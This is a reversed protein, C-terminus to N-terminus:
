PIAIEYPSTLDGIVTEVCVSSVCGPPIKSVVQNSYDAVFVNSGDYALGTPSSFGGGITTVCGATACGSPIYKVAHNISDAVYVGGNTDPAVQQPGDFGGGLTVVCGSNTCGIPITKVENHGTDGVFVNGSHDVGVGIPFSFGGGLVNVCSSSTCGNPIQKVLSNNKDAVYVNDSADVAIGFPLSFGGGIAVVCSSTKCGPPIKNVTGSAPNAVFVNGNADAAVGATESFGGGLAQACSADKCSPSIESVVDLDNTVFLPSAVSFTGFGTANGASANIRVAATAHGNYSITPTDSSGLLEDAPPGDSGSTAISTAGSTDTDVLAIPTAYTGVILYGDADLAHVTFSQHSFSSGVAGTPFGGVTINAPVGDLTVNLSNPKGRAITFPVHKVTSLLKATAPISGGVPAADYTSISGVYKGAALRVTITNVGPTLGVSEKDTTPGSFALTAGKTAKSIYHERHRDPVRIRVTLTDGIRAASSASPLIQTANTVSSCACLAAIGAGAVIRFAPNM